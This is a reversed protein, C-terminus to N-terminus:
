ALLHEVSKETSNPYPISTCSMHLKIIINNFWTLNVGFFLCTMALREHNWGKDWFRCASLNGCNYLPSWKTYAILCWEVRNDDNDWQRMLMVWRHEDNYLYQWMLMVWRHSDNYLQQWMLMVWRHSDNYLYQWILM